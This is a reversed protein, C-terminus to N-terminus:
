NLPLESRATNFTCVVGEPPYSIKSTGGFEAALTAEILRSGFGRRSPPAVAPGNAEKWEFSLENGNESAACNWSVSVTGTPNSLAGYKTANTALEHVSLVLALAQKPTLQVEPGRVTIRGEGTRHPALAGDVITKMSAGTWSSATLVSHARDLAFIRADFNARAEEKTAATRFTQSAIAAVMSMTNKIRHELEDALLKQQAEAAKQKEIDTNTGIWRVTIGSTDKIPVARAIHWRFAGDFRRLRFETEYQTSTALAEAWAAAAASIDEPHVMQAWRNGALDNFALGAYVFVQENFWDLEGNPTASWVQNPMAQAYTRFRAESERQAEQAARSETIDRSVSLLKDPNGNADRVLTVTVDWWKPTGAMTTAFGQFHGTNGARASDVAAKADINGQGEWLDPWPCGKISAFDIVEMIRLGGETMFLLNGDLDLIKICDGSSALLSRLLAEADAAVGSALYVNMDTIRPEGIRLL